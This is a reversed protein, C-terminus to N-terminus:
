DVSIFNVIFGINNAVETRLLAKLDFTNVCLGVLRCDMRILEKQGSLNMKQRQFEVVTAALDFGINLM